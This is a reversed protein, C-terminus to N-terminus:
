AGAHMLVARFRVRQEALRQMARAAQTLPYTEVIPTVEGRAAHALLDRLDERPGQKGGIVSLHMAEDDIEVEPLTAAIARIDDRTAM